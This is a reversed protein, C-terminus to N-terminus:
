REGRYHRKDGDQENGKRLHNEPQWVGHRLRRNSSTLVLTPAAGFCAGSSDRRFPRRGERMKGSVAREARRGFSCVFGQAPGATCAYIRPRMPGSMRRSTPGVLQEYVLM